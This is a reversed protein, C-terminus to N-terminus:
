FTSLENQAWFVQCRHQYDKNDRGEPENQGVLRFSFSMLDTESQLESLSQRLEKSGNANYSLIPNSSYKM